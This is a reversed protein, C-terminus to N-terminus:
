VISVIRSLRQPVRLFPQAQAKAFDGLPFGISISACVLRSPHFVRSQSHRPPDASPIPQSSIASALECVSASKTINPHFLLLLSSLISVVVAFFSFFLPIPSVLLFPKEEEEEGLAPLLEDRPPNALSM